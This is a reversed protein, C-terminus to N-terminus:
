KDLFHPFRLQKVKLGYSAPSNQTINQLYMICRITQFIHYNQQTMVAEKSINELENIMKSNLGITCPHSALRFEPHLKTFLWM